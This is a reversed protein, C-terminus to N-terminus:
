LTHPRGNERHHCATVFSCAVGIYDLGTSGQLQWAQGIDPDTGHDAANRVAGLYRDVAALKKPLFGSLLIPSLLM